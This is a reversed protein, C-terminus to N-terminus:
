GRRRRAAALALAGLGLLLGTAPLPIVTDPGNTVLEFQAWRPDAFDDAFSGLTFTGTDFVLRLALWDGVRGDDDQTVQYLISIVDDAVSLDEVAGTVISGGLVATLASAGFSSGIPPGALVGGVNAFIGLDPVAGNDIADLEDFASSYIVDGATDGVSATPLAFFQELTLAAAPSAGLMLGAAAGAIWAKM